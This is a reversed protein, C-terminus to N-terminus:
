PQTTESVVEKSIGTPYTANYDRQSNRTINTANESLGNKESELGM